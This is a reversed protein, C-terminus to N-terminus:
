GFGDADSDIDSADYTFSDGDNVVRSTGESWGGTNGSGGSQGESATRGASSASGDGSGSGSGGGDGGGDSSSGSDSEDRHLAKYMRKLVQEPRIAALELTHQNLWEAEAESIGNGLQVLPGTHTLFMGKFSKVQAPRLGVDIVQKLHAFWAPETALKRALRCGNATADHLAYVRLRPNRKLMARITEFNAEPYGDVSLVACNNEFHFNNALLIDATRARDCIIARDFSYDGIDAELRRAPAPTGRVHARTIMTKPTGHAAVWQKLLKNFDGLNLPSYKGPKHARWVAFAVFALVAPVLAPLVLKAFLALVLATIGLVVMLVLACGTKPKLRRALEYYLHEAGWRIQGKASVAEIANHFAMDTFKDGDRPEFAFKGKCQPCTKNSREKYKSDHGCRACKM